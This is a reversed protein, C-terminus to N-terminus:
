GGSGQLVNEVMQLLSETKFPKWLVRYPNDKGAVRAIEQPGYGTMLLIKVDPWTREIRRALEIGNMEPMVVDLLALDINNSELLQLAQTPRDATMVEHQGHALMNGCLKLMIPEDDVVLILAM